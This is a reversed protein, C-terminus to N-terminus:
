VLNFKKAVREIVETLGARTLPKAIYDDLGTHLLRERDGAMAHATLAIIPPLPIGRERAITRIEGSATIGDMVPMQIDMFILDFSLAGRTFIKVAEQGNVAISVTHGMISLLKETVKLNMPNDEVLLIKLSPCSAATCERRASTEFPRGAPFDQQNEPSEATEFEATFRFTAGQGPRSFVTIDGGMMKVLQRSIALGLGTGGFQRTTSADVQSFSEFLKEQQDEAIGIGTDSVEFLLTVQRGSQKQVGVTLAISGKHTFKVANGALNTLVQRLRVPDGTLYAPVADDVRVEYRLGKNRARISVSSGAEKIIQRINFDLKIFSLKGAEIKSFDLIDNIIVLLSEASEKISCAFDRQHDTLPTDLLMDTMGIVGNMPTRIEHSMNALFNSKAKNAAEAAEKSARLSEEAWSSLIVQSATNSLSGYIEYEEEDIAHRAFVALVGIRNGENDRLLRGSFATIGEKQVWQRHHIKTDEAATNTLFGPMLEGSATVWEVNHYGFPIRSYHGDTRTTYGSSALLHLCPIHDRCLRRDTFVEAHPCGQRCRDGPQTVWIRCLSVGFTDVIGDTITQLRAELTTATLMRDHIRNIGLYWNFMRKRADESKKREEIDRAIGVLSTINGDDDKVPSVDSTHWHFSGDPYMVRYEVNDVGKGTTKIRELAEEVVAQDEKHVFDRYHWGTITEPSIGAIEKLNPSFYSFYGELVLSYVIDHANEVFSRFKEESERLAQEARKRGTMDRAIGQIACPQGNKYILSAKTEVFIHHGQKHRLWYETPEKQFGTAIIEQHVALAAQLGEESLLDAYNLGQIEEWTYGLAELAADNADLFNGALDNIYIYDLSRDFLARYRNESDISAEIAKKRETIDRSATLISVPRGQNDRLFTAMVETWVPKGDKTYQQLELIRHRKLDAGTSKEAELEEAITAIAQQYSEPTLARNLPRRLAEEATLGLVKEVSPSVSLNNESELDVISIIESINEALLRYLTENQRAQELQKQLLRNRRWAWLLGGLLLLLLSFLGILFFEAGAAAEANPSAAALVHVPFFFFGPVILLSRKALEEKM